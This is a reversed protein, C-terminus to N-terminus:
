EEIINKTKCIIEKFKPLMDPSLLIFEVYEPQTLLIVKLQSSQRSIVDNLINKFSLGYDYMAGGISKAQGNYIIYEKDNVTIRHYINDITNGDLIEDKWELKLGNKEFVVKASELYSIFGGRFLYDFSVDFARYDATASSYDNPIILWGKGIYPNDDNKYELDIKEKIFKKKENDSVLDFYGIKDLEDSLKLFDDFVFEQPKQIEATSTESKPKNKCSTLYFVLSSVLIIGIIIYM